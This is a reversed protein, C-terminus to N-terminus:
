WGRGGEMIGQWGEGGTWWKMGGRVGGGKMMEQWGEGGEGNGAVGGGRSWKRGGRGGGKMM